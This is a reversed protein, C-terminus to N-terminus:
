APVQSEEVYKGDARKARGYRVGIRLFALRLIRDSGEQELAELQARRDGGFCRILVSNHNFSLLISQSMPSQSRNEIEPPTPTWAPRSKGQIFFSRGRKSAQPRLLRSAARLLLMNVGSVVPKRLSVLFKFAEAGM